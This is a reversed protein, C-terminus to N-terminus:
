SISPYFHTFFNGETKELPCFFPHDFFFPQDTLFRLFFIFSFMYFNFLLCEVYCFRKEDFKELKNLNNIKFHFITLHGYKVKIILFCFYQLLDKQM